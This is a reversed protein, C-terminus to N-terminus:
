GTTVTNGWADYDYEAMVAGNSDTLTVVDGHGNYHYFFTTAGRGHEGLQHRM